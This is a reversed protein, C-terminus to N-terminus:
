NRLGHYKVGIAELQPAISSVISIVNQIVPSTKTATLTNM